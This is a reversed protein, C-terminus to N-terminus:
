LGKQRATLAKLFMKRNLITQAHKLTPVWVNKGKSNQNYKRSDLWQAM